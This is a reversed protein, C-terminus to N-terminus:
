NKQSLYFLEVRTLNQLTHKINYNFLEITNIEDKKLRGKTIGIVKFNVNLENFLNTLEDTHYPLYSINLHMLSM